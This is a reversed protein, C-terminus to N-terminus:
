LQNNRATRQQKLEAKAISALHVEDPGDALRLSRAWMFMHAMPYDASLGGGGHIQMCRDIVNQAMTPAVVKIGAIQKRACKAGLSDIMSAAHLTLLRAQDIEVRSWALQQQVGGQESLPKGFAM